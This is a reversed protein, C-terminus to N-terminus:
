KMQNMCQHAIAIRQRVETESNDSQTYQEGLYTFLDVVQVLNGALPAESKNGCRSFTGNVQLCVSCECYSCFRIRQQYRIITM